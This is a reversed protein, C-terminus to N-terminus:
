GLMWLKGDNDDDTDANDGTGDHTTDTDQETPDLPFAIKLLRSFWRNIMMLTWLIEEGDSDRIWQMQIHSTQVSILIM